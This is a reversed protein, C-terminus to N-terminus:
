SRVRVQEPTPPDGVLDFYVRRVFEVDTTLPAPEVKPNNKALYQELLRDLEAPTLTPPIVKRQPRSPLPRAAKNMGEKRGAGCSRLWQLAQFIERSAAEDTKTGAAGPGDM